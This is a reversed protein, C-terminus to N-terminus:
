VLTCSRSSPFASSISSGWRECNRSSGERAVLRESICLIKVCLFSLAVIAPRCLNGEVRM